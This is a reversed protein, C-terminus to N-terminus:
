SKVGSAAFRTLCVGFAAFASVPYQFDVNFRDSCRGMQVLVNAVDDTDITGLPSADYKNRLFPDEPPSVVLQFNKSSTEQARSMFEELQCTRGHSWMRNHLCLMRERSIVNQSGKLRIRRFWTRMGDEKTRPRWTVSHEQGDPRAIIAPIAVEMRRDSPAKSSSSSTKKNAYAIVCMERRVDVPQGMGDLSPNVGDDFVTYENSGSSQLKGIYGDGRKDKRKGMDNKDLSILYNASMKGKLKRAYMLLRPPGGNIEIYFRFLPHFRKSLGKNDREIFCRVMQEEGGLPPNVLWDRLSDKDFPIQSADYVQIESPTLDSMKPSPLSPTSKDSNEKSEGTKSEVTTSVGSTEVKSERPSSDDVIPDQMKRGESIGKVKNDEERSSKGEGRQVRSTQSESTDNRGGGQQQQQQQQQQEEAEEESDTAIEYEDDDPRSSTRRRDGDNGYDNRREERRDGGGRRARDRDRDQERDQNRNRNRDRNADYDDYDDRDREEYEEDGEDGIDDRDYDRGKTNDDDDIVAFTPGKSQDDDVEWQAQAAMAQSFRGVPRHIKSKEARRQEEEIKAAEPSQVEWEHSFVSMVAKERENTWDRGVVEDEEDSSAMGFVHPKSKKQHQKRQTPPTKDSGRTFRRTNDGENSSRLTKIEEDPEQSKSSPPPVQQRRPPPAVTASDARKGGVDQENTKGGGGGDGSGDRDQRKKMLQARYQAAASRAGAPKGGKPPAKAFQMRAANANRAGKPPPMKPPPLIKPKPKSNTNNTNNNDQSKGEVHRTPSSEGRQQQPSSRQRSTERPPSDFEQSLNQEDMEDMDYDRYSPENDEDSDNRSRRSPDGQAGFRPALMKSGMPSTSDNRRKPPDSSALMSRAAHGFGTRRLYLTKNDDKTSAGPYDDDSM